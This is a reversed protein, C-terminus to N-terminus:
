IRIIQSTNNGKVVYTGPRLLSRVVAYPMQVYLCIGGLTYVDVLSEPSIVVNIVSTIATVRLKGDTLLTANIKTYETAGQARKYVNYTIGEPEQALKRWSILYGTGGSSTVSRGGSRYVAVVGRDLPQQLRQASLSSHSFVVLMLAVVIHSLATLAYNNSKM